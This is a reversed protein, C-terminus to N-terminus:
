LIIALYLIQIMFINMLLLVIFILLHKKRETNVTAIFERIFANIWFYPKTKSGIGEVKIGLSTAITGARFVHYNTTSYAINAKKNHAKIIKNSYEINELTNISKNEVIINNKKIGKQLLYNKIAEGEPIVENSGQGGSPIFIIDQGTADKQLKSFEIARDVRSKLINTLSGDKKIMCGLIIIYDKNFSPIHKAAKISIIITGIFIFEFYVVLGYILSEIFMQIFRLISTERHFEVFEPKQLIYDIINPVFVLAFFTISLIIGLMNRWTFGEKKILIINSIILLISIIIALPLIMFSVINTLRIIREITESLGHYNFIHLFQDIIMSSLLIILGLYFINKYKYMNDKISKKYKKIYINTICILVILISIPIIENYRADGFFNDYTIIGFKHSYLSFITSYDTSEVNIWAKGEKKSKFTLSLTNNEFEKNILEVYEEDQDIELKINEETIGKIHLTYKNGFIVIVSFCIIILIISLIGIKLANSKM